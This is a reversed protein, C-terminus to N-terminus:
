EILIREAGVALRDQALVYQHHLAISLEVLEDEAHQAELPMGAPPAHCWLGNPRLPRRDQAIGEADCPRHAPGLIEGDPDRRCQLAQRM